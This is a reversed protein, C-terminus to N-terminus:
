TPSPAHSSHRLKRLQLLPSIVRFLAELDQPHEQAVSSTLQPRVVPQPWREQIRHEVLFICMRSRTGGVGLMTCRVSHGPALVWSM